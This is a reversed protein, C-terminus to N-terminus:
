KFIQKEFEMKALERYESAKLKLEKIEEIIKKVNEAIKVQIKLPPIPFLFDQMENSNINAQGLIQRSIMDKQIQLIISNFLYNIYNVNVKNTDLTVRIIYSAFTYESQGEFIATKGVLEKSNTRNFLLDGKKLLYRSKTAEDIQIYKLDKYDVESNRINNMRLMPVGQSEKTAKESLGYQSSTMFDRLKVVKYKGHLLKNINKIKTLYGFSWREINKFNITSLKNSHTNEKLNKIGLVEILYDNIKQTLLNAKKERLDANKTLEFYKSILQNQEYISPLPIKINQFIEDSISRRGTTGSSFKECINVFWKTTTVLYLYNPNIINSNVNFASFSNTIISNQLEKPVIGFAGNRADIKSYIFQNENVLFQKKTKIEKGKKIGRLVVGNGNMKVTIQSYMNNDLINIVNKWKTVLEGIPVYRHKSINNVNIEWFRKVDWYLLETFSLLKFYKTKLDAL